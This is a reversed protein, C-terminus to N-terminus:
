QIPPQTGDPRLGTEDLIEAAARDREDITDFSLVISGTDAGLRIAPRPGRADMASGTSLRRVHGRGVELGQLGNTREVVLATPSEIAGPAPADPEAAEPTGPAEPVETAAAALAGPAVAPVAMRIPVRALSAPVEQVHEPGHATKLVGSVRLPIRDGTALTTAPAPLPGDDRRYVLYGGALGVLIVGAVGLV